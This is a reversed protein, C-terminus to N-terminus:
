WLISNSKIRDNILVTDKTIFIRAAEIGAKSRISILYKDPLEYKITAM